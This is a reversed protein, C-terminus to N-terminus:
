IRIMLVSVHVHVHVHVYMCQVTCIWCSVMSNMLYNYVMDGTTQQM